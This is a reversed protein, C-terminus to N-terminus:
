RWGSHYLHGSFRDFETFFRLILAIVADLTM